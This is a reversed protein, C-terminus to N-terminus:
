LQTEKTNNFRETNTQEIDNCSQSGEHGLIYFYLFVVLWNLLLESKWYVILFIQAHVKAKQFVGLEATQRFPWFLKSSDSKLRNEGGVKVLWIRCTCLCMLELSHDRIWLSPLSSLWVRHDDGVPGTWRQWHTYISVWLVCHLQMMMAEEGWPQLRM